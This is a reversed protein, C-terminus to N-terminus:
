LHRLIWFLYQLCRCGFARSFIHSKTLSGKKVWELFAKSSRIQVTLLPLNFSAVVGHGLFSTKSALRQAPSATHKPGEVREMEVQGFRLFWERSCTMPRCEHMFSDWCVQGVRNACIKRTLNPYLQHRVHQKQPLNTGLMNLPHEATRRRLMVWM